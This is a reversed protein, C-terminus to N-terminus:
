SPTPAGSMTITAEWRVDGLPNDAKRTYSSVFGGVDATGTWTLTVKAASPGVAAVVTRLTDPPTITDPRLVDDVTKSWPGGIKYSFNPAGPGQQQASSTFVTADTIEVGNEDSFSDMYGALATGNYSFTINGLSKTRAM